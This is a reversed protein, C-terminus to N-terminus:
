DIHVTYTNLFFQSKRSESSFTGIQTWKPALVVPPVANPTRTLEKEDIMIINKGVTLTGTFINQPCHTDVGQLGILSEITNIGHPSETKASCNM